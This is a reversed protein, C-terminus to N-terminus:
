HNCAHFFLYNIIHLINPRMGLRLQTGASCAAVTLAPMCGTWCAPNGGPPLAWGAVHRCRCRRCPGAPVPGPPVHCTDGPWPHRWEYPTRKSLFIQLHDKRANWERLHDWIDFFGNWPGYHLGCMHRPSTKHPLTAPCLESCVSSSRAFWFKLISSPISSREISLFSM